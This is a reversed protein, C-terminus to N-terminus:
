HTPFARPSRQHPQRKQPHTTPMHSQRRGFRTPDLRMGLVPGAVSGTAPVFVVHGDRRMIAGHENVAIFAGPIDATVDSGTVGDLIVSMGNVRGYVLGGFFVRNEPAVRNGEPLEWLTRLTKPDLARLSDTSGGDYVIDGDSTPDSLAVQPLLKTIKGTAPDLVGTYGGAGSYLDTSVVLRGDTQLANMESVATDANDGVSWEVEGTAPDLGTVQSHDMGDSKTTKATVVVAEPTVAHATGPKSWLVEHTAVDVAGVTGQTTFTGDDSRSVFVRGDAEAVVRVSEAISRDVEPGAPIDASWSLDGTEADVAILQLGYSASTTGSGPIEVVLAGYVTSGDASIIPAGPGSSDYMVQGPDEDPGNPFRTEWLTEGTMLDVAGVSTRTVGYAKDGALTFRNTVDGAINADVAPLTIPVPESDFEQPADFSRLSGSSPTSIGSASSTDSSRNDLGDGDPASCASLLITVSLIVGPAGSIRRSM